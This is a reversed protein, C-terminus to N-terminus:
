VFINVHCGFRARGHASAFWLPWCAMRIRAGNLCAPVYAPSKTRAQEGFERKWTEFGAPTSGCQAADAKEGLCALLALAMFAVTKGTNMRFERRPTQFSTLGPDQPIALGVQAAAEPVSTIWTNQARGIEKINLAGDDALM